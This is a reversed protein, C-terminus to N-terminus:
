GTEAGGTLVMAGVSLASTWWSRAAIKLKMSIVRGKRHRKPTSVSATSNTAAATVWAVFFVLWDPISNLGAVELDYM